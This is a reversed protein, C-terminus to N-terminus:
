GHVVFADVPVLTGTAASNKTGLVKVVITHSGPALGSVSRGVVQWATSPQYLDVTTAPGGDVSM